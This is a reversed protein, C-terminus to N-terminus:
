PAAPHPDLYFYHEVPDPVGQGTDLQLFYVGSRRIQSLDFTITWTATGQQTATQRLTVLKPDLAAGEGVLWFVTVLPAQALPAAFTVVREPRLTDTKGTKIEYGLGAILMGFNAATAATYHIAASWLELLGNALRSDDAGSLSDQYLEGALRTTERLGDFIDQQQLQAYRVLERGVRDAYPEREGAGSTM